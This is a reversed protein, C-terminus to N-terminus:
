SLESKPSLYEQLSRVRLPNAIWEGIGVAAARAAAVTTLCPIKHMDMYTSLIEDEQAGIVNSVSRIYGRIFVEEPLEDFQNKELAELYRVPIKTKSHLEDLTVGRLERESKLYSGFDEIM